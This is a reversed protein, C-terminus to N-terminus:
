GAGHGRRPGRRPAEEEGPAVNYLVWHVFGGRADPDDVTLAFSKTGAPADGWALTPFATARDCAYRELIPQGEDFAPGGLSLPIGSTPTPQSAEDDGGGCSVAAPALVAGAVPLVWWFPAKGAM